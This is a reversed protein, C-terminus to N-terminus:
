AGIYLCIKKQHKIYICVYVGLQPYIKRRRMDGCVGCVSRDGCVGCLGTVACVM